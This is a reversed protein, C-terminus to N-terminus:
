FNGSYSWAPIAPTNPINGWFAILFQNYHKRHFILWDSDDNAIKHQIIYAFGYIKRIINSFTKRNGHM